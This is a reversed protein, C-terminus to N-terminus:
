PHLITSIPIIICSLPTELYCNSGMLETYKKLWINSKQLTPFSHEIKLLCSITSYPSLHVPDLGAHCPDLGAHCPDLGAHCPNLGAHCPEPGCPCPMPSLLYFFSSPQPDLGCHCHMLSLLLLNRSPPRFRVVNTSSIECVM